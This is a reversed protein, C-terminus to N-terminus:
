RICIEAALYSFNWTKKIKKKIKQSMKTGQSSFFLFENKKEDKQQHRLDRVYFSGGTLSIKTICYIVKALSGFFWCGVKLCYFWLFQSITTSTHSHEHGCVPKGENNLIKCNYSTAHCPM